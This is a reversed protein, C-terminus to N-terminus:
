LEKKKEQFPSFEQISATKRLDLIWKEFLEARKKASLEEEIEDWVEPLALRKAARSESRYLFFYSGSLEIPGSVEGDALAKATGALQPILTEDVNIFGYDGGKDAFSHKSYARTAEAFSKGSALAERFATLENTSGVPISAIYLRITQPQEFSATHESYYKRIANPSVHINDEVFTRRMASVIMHERLQDKWESYTMQDQQLDSQLAQLDGNYRDDLVSAAMRDIAHDPIRMESKWYQQIVLRQNELDRLATWYAEKFVAEDAMGPNGRKVKELAPQMVRVVDSVLVPYGNVSAALADTVGPEVAAGHVGAAIWCTLFSFVTKRFLSKM